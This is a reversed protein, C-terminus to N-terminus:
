AVGYAGMLEHESNEASIHLLLTHHLAVTPHIASHKAFWLAESLPEDSHWTTMVFRDEPIEKFEFQELNAMDVSDDWSSCNEGWAVM